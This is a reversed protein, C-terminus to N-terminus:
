CVVSRFLVPAPKSGASRGFRSITGGSGSLEKEM